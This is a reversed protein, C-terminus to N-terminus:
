NGPMKPMGVWPCGTIEALDRNMSVLDTRDLDHIDRKGVIRTFEAVEATAVRIFNALRKAGAEVDLLGMLAPDQTTVGTPCLGTYCIRYQECQIAILAATGLYVADAGLALCRAVDAATRLGGGAILSVRDRVGQLLLFRHARPLAAVLPIGVHDRVWPDTAGTGGGFGDLAIFDVGATFLDAIDEEVSGCGIKAGVPVGGTLSKLWAVKEQIASVSTMDAHHAPSRAAEGEKLNRIAAIEPTIKDAPLYSGKGPYAGQGFRIEIAAARKLIEEKVGFRGTAYQVILRSPAVKLEEELVGGEGSNFAFGIETSAQTIVQKVSASVAGFSMGSLLIPTPLHLPRKAGPGLIVGTKVPEEHNLPIRQIQAPVFHLDELSFPIPKQSGMAATLPTGTAAIIKIEQITRYTPDPENTHQKRMQLGTGEINVRNCYYIEKLDYEVYVACEQCYCGLADIERCSAGLDCYLVEENCAVKPYSPCHPCMCRERNEQSDLVKM